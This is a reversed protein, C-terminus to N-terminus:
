KSKAILHSVSSALLLSEWSGKTVVLYPVGKIERWAIIRLVSGSRLAKGFVELDNDLVFTQVSNITDSFRLHPVFLDNKDNDDLM